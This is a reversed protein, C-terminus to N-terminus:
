KCFKVHLQLAAETEELSRLLKQRKQQLQEDNRSFVGTQLGNTYTEVLWHDDMLLWDRYLLLVEADAITSSETAPISSQGGM